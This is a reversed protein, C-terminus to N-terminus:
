QSQVPAGTWFPSAGVCNSSVPQVEARPLNVPAHEARWFVDKLDLTPLVLRAVTRCQNSWDYDTMVNQGAVLEPTKAGRELISSRDKEVWARVAPRDPLLYSLWHTTGYASFLLYNTEYSGLVYDIDKSVLFEVQGYPIEPSRKLVQVITREQAIRTLKAFHGPVLFILNVVITAILIKHAAGNNTTRQGLPKSFQVLWVVFLTVVVMLLLTHRVGWGGYWVSIINSSSALVASLSSSSLANVIFLPSALGVAIYPLSAALALIVFSSVYQSNRSTNLTVEELGTVSRRNLLIGISVPILLLLWTGWISARQLYIFWSSMELPNLLKNYGVYTGTPPWVIRTVYFVFISLGLILLTKWYKWSSKDRLLLWKSLELAILFTCNSALQFSFIVLVTGLVCTSPKQADMLRYGILALWVCTIHGIMPTYSFFVYWLPFSFVLAPIWAATTQSIEFQSQALKYAEYTIGLIMLSVWFKFQIWYPILTLQHILDVLLFITYTIYWNSNLIWGKITLWNNTELAYSGIVGDWMEASSLWIPMVGLVFAM